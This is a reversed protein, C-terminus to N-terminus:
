GGGGGGAGGTLDFLPLFMSIAVGGVVLGLVILIVPEIISTLSKVIVENEEDMFEALQVLVPGVQGTREGSRVAEIVSPSVLEGRSGDGLADSIPVGKTVAEEARSLLGAYVENGAAQRTLQLADVLPVKGEMLVGLLRVIRATVFSRVILGVKPVRLVVRHITERGAPSRTWMWAGTGLAAVVGVVAWWYSRLGHGLSMLIRTTPPVPAQLNAFLGEFRPLVFVLTVIVVAVAIVMLLSPYIMAGILASRIKLQQRTLDALRGLMDALNGRLEGALVLSRCVSDFQRPHAEMAASLAAGEEVRARLDGVVGRWPGPKSQKELVGLADLVPTGTRVLLALQKVFNTLERLNKAPGAGGSTSPGGGGAASLESVYVGSRRLHERAAEPGAAEVTGTTPKGAKDFARYAYKM